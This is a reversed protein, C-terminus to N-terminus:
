CSWDPNLDWVSKWAFSHGRIRGIADQAITRMKDVDPDEVAVLIVLM